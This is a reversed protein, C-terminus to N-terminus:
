LDKNLATFPDENLVKLSKEQLKSDTDITLFNDKRWVFLHPIKLYRPIIENTFDSSAIEKKSAM